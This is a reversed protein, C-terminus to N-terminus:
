LRAKELMMEDQYVVVEDSGNEQIIHFIIVTLLWHIKYKNM